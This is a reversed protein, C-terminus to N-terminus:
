ESNQIKKLKLVIHKLMQLLIQTLIDILIDDNFDKGVSRKRIFDEDIPMDEDHLELMTKFIDQHAKLFFDEVKLIQSVSYIEDPNFIISSLVAKEISLSYALDM